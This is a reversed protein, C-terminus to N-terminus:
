LYKLAEQNDPDIDLVLNAYRRANRPERRCKELLRQVDDDISICSNNEKNSSSIRNFNKLSDLISSDENNGSFKSGCYSCIIVGNKEQLDNAGCRECVILKM